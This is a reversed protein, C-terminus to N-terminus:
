QMSELRIKCLSLPWWIGKAPPGFVCMVFGGDSKAGDQFFRFITVDRYRNSRNRGFKAPRRLEARRLRLVTLNEFIYFDLIPAAAMKSFRFIVMVRGRNSRNFRFKALRRLKARKLRGVMLPKSKSFGLHRRGGDQFISFRRTEAVVQGIEVFNPM